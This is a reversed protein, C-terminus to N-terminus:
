TWKELAGKSPRSEGSGAGPPVHRARSPRGRSARAAVEGLREVMQRQFAAYDVPGGTRGREVQTAVTAIMAQVAAVMGNLEKPIEVVTNKM